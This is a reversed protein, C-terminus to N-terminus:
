GHKELVQRAQQIDSQIQARLAEAGPFRREGRLCESLEVGLSRGYLDGEFDLLHVEVHVSNNGGDFTPRRGVNVVAPHRPAEDAIHCWAAYVGDPPLLTNLPVVNATPAGLTRGRRAGREVSGEILFPRGLLRAVESMAGRSLAARVRTSSIPAGESAVPPMATVEFGHRRGLRELLGVDGSRGQGFRFGAGVLVWRAGLAGALIESVFDEPPQAAVATTFPLVVLRELGLAALLRVKQELSLLETPAAAPNVVKAPHPDFTLAMAAGGLQRSRAVTAAILAQHGRHVGDFNGVAVAPVPWGLAVPSELRVCEM